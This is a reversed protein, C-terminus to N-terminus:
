RTGQQIIKVASNVAAPLNLRKMDLVWVNPNLESAFREIDAIANIMAARNGANIQHYVEQAPSDSLVIKATGLAVGRRDLQRQMALARGPNETDIVQSGAPESIFTSESTREIAIGRRVAEDRASPTIVASKAVLLPTESHKEITELTVVRSSLATQQHTPLRAIVKRVIEAILAPDITDGTAIGDKAM